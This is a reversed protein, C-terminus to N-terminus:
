VLCFYICIFFAKLGWRGNGIVYVNLGALASSASSISLPEKEADYKMKRIKNRNRNRYKMNRYKDKKVSRSSLRRVTLRLGGRVVLLGRACWARDTPVAGARM